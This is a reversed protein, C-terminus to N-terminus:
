YVTQQILNLIATADYDEQILSSLILSFLIKAFLEPTFQAHFADPRINPDTKLVTCLIQQIHSWSEQMKAKGAQKEINLFAVSHFTFFGPYKAVGYEMRQYIWSILNQISSMIAPDNPRCFIDNWINGITASILDSKSDFYNYISGISVNCADAVSRINICQWGQQQILETSKKLIDEKSTVTHRM